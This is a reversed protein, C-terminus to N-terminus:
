IWMIKETGEIDRLKGLEEKETKSIVDRSVLRLLVERVNTMRSFFLHNAKMANRDSDDLMEDALFQNKLDICCHIIIKCIM